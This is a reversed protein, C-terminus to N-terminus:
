RATPGEEGFGVEWLQEGVVHQVSAGASAQPGSRIIRLDVTGYEGITVDDYKRGPVVVLLRDERRDVDSVSTHEPRSRPRRAGHREELDAAAEDGQLLLLHGAQASARRSYLFAQDALERDPIRRKQHDDLRDTSM